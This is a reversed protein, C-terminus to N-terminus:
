MILRSCHTATSGRLHAPRCISSDTRLEAVIMTDADLLAYVSYNLGKNPLDGDPAKIRAVHAITPNGPTDTDYRMYIIGHNQKAVMWRRDDLRLIDYTKWNHTDEPLPYTTMAGSGIDFVTFYPEMGGIFLRATDASPVVCTINRSVAAVSPQHNESPTDCGGMGLFLLIAFLYGIHSKM